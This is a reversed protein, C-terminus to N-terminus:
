GMNSLKEQKECDVSAVPHVCAVSEWSVLVRGAASDMYIGVADAAVMSIAKVVISTGDKFCIKYDM